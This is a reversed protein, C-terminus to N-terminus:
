TEDGPALSKCFGYVLNDLPIDTILQILEASNQYIHYGFTNRIGRSGFTIMQVSEVLAPKGLWMIVDGVSINTVCVVKTKPM